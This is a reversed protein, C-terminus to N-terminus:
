SQTGVVTGVTDGNTINPETTGVRLDGTTDVWLFYVTGNKAELAISGPATGGGSQREVHLRPSHDTANGNGVIRLMPKQLTNAMEFRAVEWGGVSLSVKPVSSPASWWLGSDADSAFRLSPTGTAGDALPLASVSTGTGFTFLGADSISLRETISAGTYLRIDGAADTTAISLGGAGNAELVGGSAVLYGSTTHASSLAIVRLLEATVNNGVDLSARNATGSTTNRIQLRNTGTGGSSFAHSGFGEASVTGGFTINSGIVADFKDYIASGIRAVNWATVTDTMSERAITTAAM